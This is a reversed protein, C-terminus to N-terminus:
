RIGKQYDVVISLWTAAANVETVVQYRVKNLKSSTTCYRQLLKKEPDVSPM